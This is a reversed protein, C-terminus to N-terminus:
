YASDDCRPLYVHFSTGKGFESEVTIAGGYGEVIENAVFLGLGTGEGAKKTSFFPEFVRKLTEQDMGVGTDSITIRTHMGRRAHPYAKVFEDDVEVSALSVAVIGGNKEMACCANACLNMLVQQIQVPDALVTGCDGEVSHRIEINPPLTSRLFEIAEEVLKSVQLPKVDAPKRRRSFNLLRKVLDRANNAANMVRNQHDRTRSGAPLDDMVLEGHLFIPTLINNLDHAIGGALTGVTEMKQSQYLRAELAAREEEARKRETIDTSILNVSTVVNDSKIPEVRCDYMSILGDPGLGESEYRTPEGTNWVHRVKRRVLDHHKPPIFEYISKGITKEPTLGSVTHNVFRIIDDRDLNCIIDPSNETLSRWREESEKIARESQKRDTIDRFYWIRGFNNGNRDVLPSSYRDFVKGDNFEIEDRSKEAPHSYRHRVKSLFAEPYKLQGLVQQLMKEDDRTDLIEQPLQWMDGFRKNFLLSKGRRDVVLIGDISTESEAELLASKLLLEKEARKRDTIDRDIGRYGMVNKKSDLIPVGSTELVITRGDKHLNANELRDFARKSAVTERFIHSIREAEDPPMLDFPTKGIIERPEYGLLDEVRPSAYTYVGHRDVEWIWDSTTEVLSRFREESYRMAKEAKKSMFYTVIAAFLAISIVLIARMYFDHWTINGLFVKLFDHHHFFTYDIIADTVWMAAALVVAGIIIKREIKM